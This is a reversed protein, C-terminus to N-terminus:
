VKERKAITNVILMMMMRDNDADDDRDDDDNACAKRHNGVPARSGGESMASQVGARQPLLKVVTPPSM